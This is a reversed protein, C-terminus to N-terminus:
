RVVILGVRAGFGDDVASAGAPVLWAGQDFRVNLHHVGPSLARPLSWRGGGIPTLAQPKWDTFDGIVEAQRAPAWQVTLRRSSVVITPATKPSTSSRPTATRASRAGFAFRLGVTGFHGGPLHMGFQPLSHGTAGVVGLSPALWWTGSLEWGSRRSLEAGLRRTLSLGLEYRSLNLSVRSGVDTYESIGKRVLTDPSGASDQGLRGGSVIRGGFGTRSVWVHLHAPGVSRRVGGELRTLENAPNETGAAGLAAGLWIGGASGTAHLRAGVDWRVATRADPGTSMAFGGLLEPVLGLLPRLRYGAGIEGNLLQDRGDAQDWAVPGSHLDIRGGFQAAAGTPVAVGVAVVAYMVVSVSRWRGIM